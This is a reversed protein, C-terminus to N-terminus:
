LANWMLASTLAWFALAALFSPLLTISRAIPPTM